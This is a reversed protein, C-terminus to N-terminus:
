AQFLARVNDPSRRVVFMIAVLALATLGIGILAKKVHSM